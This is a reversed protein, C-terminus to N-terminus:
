QQLDFLFKVVAAEHSIHIEVGAASQVFLDSICLQCLVVEDQTLTLISKRDAIKAIAKKSDM